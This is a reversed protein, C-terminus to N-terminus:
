VTVQPMAQEVIHKWMVEYAAFFTCFVCHTNGNERCNKDSVNRMKLIWWSTVVFTCRDECLTGMMRGLSLHCWFKKVSKQFIMFYRFTGRACISLCVLLSITAKWLQAFAGLFYLGTSLRQIIVHCNGENYNQCVNSPLLEYTIV